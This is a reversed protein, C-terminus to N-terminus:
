QSEIKYLHRSVSAYGGLWGLVAAFVLVAFGDSLGLLELRVNAGYLTGLGALDNNLVLIAIDVIAYGVVGGFVGQLIGFYFFPRRIYANTAGVLKSVEIEDSQTLIQLRITNFTVAVLAFSLLAGVLMVATRGFRLLSNVREMWASDTQVYAVRPISRFDRAVRQALEPDSAALTAVFADPLPNERLTEIVDAMGPVRKLGDFAEQRSVFVVSRVGPAGRLRKQLGAIESKTVEPALFISIQADAAIGRAFRQVNILLVHGGLPLALAVGIVLANLLTAVPSAAFRRATHAFSLAHHRLWARM